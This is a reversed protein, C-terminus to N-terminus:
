SWTRTIAFPLITYAPTGHSNSCPVPTNLEITWLVPSL